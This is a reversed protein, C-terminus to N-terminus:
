EGESPNIDYVNLPNEGEEEAREQLNYKKILGRAMKSTRDSYAHLGCTNRRLWHWHLVFGMRTLIDFLAWLPGNKKLLRNASKGTDTCYQSDTIIHVHYGRTRVKGSSRREEERTALWNLPQLYAMMEAFNVTGKNMAGNWVVREGTVKEISVSAWGAERDWNSGSGDGVLLFDWDRIKLRKLLDELPEGNVDLERYDKKKPKSDPSRKKSGKSKKM